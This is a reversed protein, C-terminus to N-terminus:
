ITNPDKNTISFNSGVLHLLYTSLNFRKMSALYVEEQGLENKISIFNTHDDNMPSESILYIGLQPAIPNFYLRQPELASNNSSNNIISPDLDVLRFLIATLYRKFFINYTFVAIYNDRASILIDDISLTRTSPLGFRVDFWDFSDSTNM